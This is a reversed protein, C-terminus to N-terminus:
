GGELGRSSTAHGDLVIGLAGAEEDGEGVPLGLEEVFGEAFVDELELVGLHWGRPLPLAHTVGQYARRQGIGPLLPESHDRGTRVHLGPQSSM